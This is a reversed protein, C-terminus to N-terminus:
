VSSLTKGRYSMSTSRLDSSGPTTPEIGVPPVMDTLSSTFDTPTFQRTGLRRVNEGQRITRETPYYVLLLPRDLPGPLVRLNAAWLYRAGDVM